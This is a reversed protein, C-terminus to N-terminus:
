QLQEVADAIRMLTEIKLKEMKLSECEILMRHYRPGRQLESAINNYYVNLKDRPLM